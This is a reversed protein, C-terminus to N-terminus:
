HSGDGLDVEDQETEEPPYVPLSKGAMPHCKGDQFYYGKGCPTQPLNLQRQRVQTQIANSARPPPPQPASRSSVEQSPSPSGDEEDATLSICLVFSCLTLLFSM